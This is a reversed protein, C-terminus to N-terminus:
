CIANYKVRDVTCYLFKVLHHVSGVGLAEGHNTYISSYYRVIYTYMYLIFAHMGYTTSFEYYKASLEQGYTTGIRRYYKVPRIINSIRSDHKVIHIVSGITTSSM